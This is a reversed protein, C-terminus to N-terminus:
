QQHPVTMVEKSDAIALGFDKSVSFGTVVFSNLSAKVPVLVTGENNTKLDKFIWTKASHDGLRAYPGQDFSEKFGDETTGGEKIVQAPEDDIVVDEIDADDSKVSAVCHEWGRIANTLIFTNADEVDLYRNKYSKLSPFNHKNTHSSMEVIIRDADIDNGRESFKAERAFNDVGLLFVHSGRKSIVQM